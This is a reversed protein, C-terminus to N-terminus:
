AGEQCLQMIEEYFKKSLEVASLLEKEKVWGKHGQKEKPKRGYGFGGADIQCRKETVNFDKSVAPKTMM